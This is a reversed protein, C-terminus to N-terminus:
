ALCTNPIPLQPLWPADFFPPPNDKFFAPGNRTSPGTALPLTFFLILHTVLWGWPAPLPFALYSEACCLIGHMLFFALTIWIAQTDDFIVLAIHAHLLGSILFTTLVATTSSSLYQKVPKFVSENLVTSTLRNYRRGWFERLSKSFLPFNSISLVTYKERTILRVFAIMIDSIHSGTLILFCAIMSRAYNESPGCNSLWRIIWHNLILKVVGSILDCIIPWQKEKSNNPIIPLLTWFLKLVFWHFKPIENPYFVIMQVIRLSMIWYISILAVSGMSLRPLDRCGAYTFVICPVLTLTARIWNNRIYRLIFHCVVIHVLWGVPVLQQLSM